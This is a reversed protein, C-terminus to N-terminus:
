APQVHVAINNTAYPLVFHYGRGSKIGEPLRATIKVIRQEGPVLPKEAGDFTMRVLGAYGESLKLVFNEILKQPDNSKLEYTSALATELGEDAFAGAFAKDQLDIAVNGTNKLNLSAEVKGGPSGSLEIGTPTIRVRSKPEVEIVVSFSEGGVKVEAQYQGPPCAEPVRMRLYPEGRRLGITAPIEESVAKLAGEPLVRAPGIKDAFTPDLATRGRVVITPEAAAM